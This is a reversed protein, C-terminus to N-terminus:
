RVSEVPLKAVAIAAETAAAAATAFFSCALRSRRWLRRWRQRAFTAAALRAAEVAGTAAAVACGVHMIGDGCGASDWMHAMKGRLVSCYLM